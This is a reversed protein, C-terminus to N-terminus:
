ASATTLIAGTQRSTVFYACLAIFDVGDRFPVLGFPEPDETGAGALFFAGVAVHVEQDAVRVVDAKEFMGVEFALHGFGDAAM